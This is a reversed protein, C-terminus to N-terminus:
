NWDFHGLFTLLGAAWFMGRQLLSSPIWARLRSGGIWCVPPPIVRLWSLPPLALNGEEGGGADKDEEWEWDQHFVHGDSLSVSLSLSCVRGRGKQEVRCTPHHRGVHAPCDGESLGGLWISIEGPFMRVSVWFYRKVMNNPHKTAWDLQCLILWWLSFNNSLCVVM